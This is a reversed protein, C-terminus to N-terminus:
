RSRTRRDYSVLHDCGQPTLIGRDNKVVFCIVLSGSGAADSQLYIVHRAGDPVVGVIRYGRSLFDKLGPLGQAKAAFVASVVAVLVAATALWSAIGFLRTTV